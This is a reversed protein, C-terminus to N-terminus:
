LSIIKESKFIVTACLYISFQIQPRLSVTDPLLNKKLREAFSVAM